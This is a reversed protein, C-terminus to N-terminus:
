GYVYVSRDQLYAHDSGAYPVADDERYVFSAYRYPNYTVASAREFDRTEQWDRPDMSVLEGVIGAHVNKRQERLVRQRGAESVRGTANRLHVHSAHAIVRGRQPGQLARVSWVHRHLNYYVFVRM